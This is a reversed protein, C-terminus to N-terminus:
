QEPSMTLLRDLLRNRPRTFPNVVNIGHWIFGEQLDESLLLRCHYLEGMAQAPILVDEVLLAAILERAMTCRGMDGIGEAYDIINTDLAARVTKSM